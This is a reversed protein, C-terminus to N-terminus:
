ETGETPTAMLRGKFYLTDMPVGNEDELIILTTPRCSSFLTIISLIIIGIGTRTKM